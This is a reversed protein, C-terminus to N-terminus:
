DGPMTSKNANEKPIYKQRIKKISCSVCNPISGSLEIGYHKATDQLYAHSTHGTKQHFSKKSM